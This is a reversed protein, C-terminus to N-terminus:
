TSKMAFLNLLKSGIKINFLFEIHISNIPISVLVTPKSVKNIIIYIIRARKLYSRTVRSIGIQKFLESWNGEACPDEYFRRSQYIYISTSMTEYSRNTYTSIRHCKSMFKTDNAGNYQNYNCVNLNVQVSCLQNIPDFSFFYNTM